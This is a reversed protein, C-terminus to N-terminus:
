LSVKALGRAVAYGGVVWKAFDLWEQASLNKSVIVMLGAIVLVLSSLIFESTYLGRPQPPPTTIEEEIEPDKKPM